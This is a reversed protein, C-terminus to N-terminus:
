KELALEILKDLLQPYVMGESMWLSPFMSDITFDPITNLENLYYSGTESDLFFDIRSFWRVNVANCARKTIDQLIALMETPIDEAIQRIVSAGDLYKAEYTYFEHNGQIIIEGAGSVLFDNNGLVSLEIERPRHLWKEALIRRDYRLAADIAPELEEPSRVKSIGISSGLNAPKIFLPFGLTSIDALVRDKQNSWDFDTFGIYPLQPIDIRSLVSKTLLKDMCIASGAVGSWVYPIRMLDFMGQIRGDEGNFGHIVPFIVDPPSSLTELCQVFNRCVNENKDLIFFDDAGTYWASEELLIQMAGDGVFCKGTKSIGLPVVLYKDRDLGDIVTQASDLSIRHEFSSWWFVVLVIKLM